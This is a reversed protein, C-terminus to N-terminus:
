FSLVTSKIPYGNALSTYNDGVYANGTIDVVDAVPM